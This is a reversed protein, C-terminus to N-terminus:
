TFVIIKEDCRYKLPAIHKQAAGTPTHVAPSPDTGSCEQHTASRARGCPQGGAPREAL